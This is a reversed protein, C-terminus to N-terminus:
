LGKAFGKVLCWVHVNLPDYSEVKLDILAYNRGTTEESHV